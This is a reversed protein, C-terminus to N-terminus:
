GPGLELRGRRAREVGHKKFNDIVYRVANVVERVTKLVRAHCRDAFVKGRRSLARNISKAARICLGQMGRSLARKDGAEVILHVHDQQVSYDLIQFSANAKGVIARKLQMTSKM